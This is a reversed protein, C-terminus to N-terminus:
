WKILNILNRAYRSPTHKELQVDSPPPLELQEPVVGDDEMALLQPSESIAETAVPVPAVVPDVPEAISPEAPPEEVTPGEVPPDDVLPAETLPAETTPADTMPADMTPAEVAPAEASPAPQDELLAKPLINEAAPTQPTPAEIEDATM